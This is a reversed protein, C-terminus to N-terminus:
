PNRREFTARARSKPAFRRNRRQMIKEVIAKRYLEVLAAAQAEVSFSRSLGLSNKSFSRLKEPDALLSCVVSGFSQADAPAVMGNLGNILMGAFAQDWVAVLPLGAAIAEAMAVCQTETTAASLFLDAEQLLGPLDAHALMGVFHIREALGCAAAQRELDARSSGDGAFVLQSGPFHAAIQVFAEVLLSLNKEPALRGVSLLLPVAPDIGLRRRFSHSGDVRQFSALDIGNPIVHIPRRVRQRLLLVKTKESPTVIQDTLNATTTSFWRAAGYVPRTSGLRKLYRVYDTIATHYTYILPTHKAKATLYAIMGTSLPSHIHLVDFECRRLALSTRPTGPVSIYYPPSLRYTLAPIRHVDPDTDDYDPFRPAFITVQHGAARLAQTLWQLSVSIGNIQPAYTDAFFGIRLAAEGPVAPMPQRHPEFVPNM